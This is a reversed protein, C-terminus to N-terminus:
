PEHSIMSENASVKGCLGANYLPIGEGQPNQILGLIFSGALEDMGVWGLWGMFRPSAVGVGYDVVSM